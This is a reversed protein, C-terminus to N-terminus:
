DFIRFVAALKAEAEEYTEIHITALRQTESTIIEYRLKGDTFSLVHLKEPGLESGDSNKLFIDVQINKPTLPFNVFCPRIKENANLTKLLLDGAAMLLERAEDINVERYYFFACHLLKTPKTKGGIGGYEVAYLKKERMLQWLVRHGLENALVTLSPHYDTASSNEVCGTILILIFLLFRV